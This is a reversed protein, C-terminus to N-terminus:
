DLSLKTNTLETRKMDLHELDGNNRLSKFVLNETSFEGHADLGAQRYQKLKRMISDIDEPDDARESMREIWRHLAQYKARVSRDNYGSQTLPRRELWQNTILSYSNGERQEEDDEVYIEVPTGRLTLDYTKNWLRRKSDFMQEVMAGGGYVNDMNVILHLDLDSHPTYTLNTMSGTIIIDKLPLKDIRLFKIFERAIEVLKSRVEPRLEEDRWLRPNLQTHFMVPAQFEFIKM